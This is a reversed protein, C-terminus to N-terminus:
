DLSRCCTKTATYAWSWVQLISYITSTKTHYTLCLSNLKYLCKIQKILMDENQLHTLIRDDILWWTIQWSSNKQMTNKTAPLVPTLLWIQRSSTECLVLAWGRQYWRCGDIQGYGGKINSILIGTLFYTQLLWLLCYYKKQQVYSTLWPQLPAKNESWSM